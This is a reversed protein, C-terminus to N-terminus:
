ARRPPSTSSGGATTASSTTPGPALTTPDCSTYDPRGPEPLAAPTDADWAVYHCVYLDLDGDGDLDAFAASTPWGRDGALGAPETVDEFTGDGRNRLLRYSRWRTLFLDPHGDNDIDGVAVGHGYGGRSRPRHGSESRPTTSRATAAIASSATAPATAARTPPFPGGQVAYVDLLGDGDLRRPRRRRGHDRSAPPAPTEGSRFVFALGSPAADDAFRPVEVPEPEPAPGGAAALNDLVLAAVALPLAAPTASPDDPTAALARRAERDSPARRVAMELFQRPGRVPARPDGRPPGARPPQRGARRRADPHPLPEAGPRDGGQPPPAGRGPPRRRRRPGLDGSPRPDRAHAPGSEALREWAQATGAVTVAAPRGGPTWPSGIMPRCGAPAWRRRPRRSRTTAAPPWRGASGAGPRGRLQGARCRLADDLSHRADDLRGERTALNARALAVRGDGPALAAARDLVARLGTLPSTDLDIAIYAPRRGAGGGAQHRGPRRWQRELLAQAEDYRGEQVFLHILHRRIDVARPGAPDVALAGSM